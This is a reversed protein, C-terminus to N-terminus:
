FVVGDYDEDNCKRRTKIGYLERKIGRCFHNINFLLMAIIALLVVIVYEM